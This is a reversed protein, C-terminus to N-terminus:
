LKNIKNFLFVYLNGNIESILTLYLWKESDGDFLVDAAKKDQEEEEVIQPKQAEEQKDQQAEEENNEAPDEEEEEMESMEEEGQESMRDLNKMEIMTLQCKDFCGVELFSKTFIDDPNIITGSGHNTDGKQQIVVM